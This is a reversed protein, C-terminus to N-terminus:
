CYSRRRPRRHFTSLVCCAENLLVLALTFVIAALVLDCLTWNKFIVLTSCTDTVSGQTSEQPSPPSDQSQKSVDKGSTKSQKKSSKKEHSSANSGSTQMFCQQEVELVSETKPSVPSPESEITSSDECTNRHSGICGDPSQSSSVLALIENKESSQKASRTQRLRKFLASVILSNKSIDMM